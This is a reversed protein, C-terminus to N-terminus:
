PPGKAAEDVEAPKTLAIVDFKNSLAFQHAKITGTVFLAPILM